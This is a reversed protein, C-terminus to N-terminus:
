KTKPVKKARVKKSGRIPTLILNDGEKSVRLRTNGDMKLIEFFVPDIIIAHENGIKTWQAIM